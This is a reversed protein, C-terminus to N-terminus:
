CTDSFIRWSDPAQVGAGSLGDTNRTFTGIRSRLGAGGVGAAALCAGASAQSLINGDRKVVTTWTVDSIQQLSITGGFQIPQDKGDAVLIEASAEM